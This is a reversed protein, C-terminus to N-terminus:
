SPGRRGSRVVSLSFPHTMTHIPPTIRFFRTVPSKDENCAVMAQKEQRRNLGILHPSGPWPTLARRASRPPESRLLHLTKRKDEQGYDTTLPARATRPLLGRVFSLVRAQPPRVCRGM